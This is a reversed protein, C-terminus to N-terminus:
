KWCWFSKHANLIWFLILPPSAILCRTRSSGWHDTFQTSKNGTSDRSNTCCGNPKTECECTCERLALTIHKNSIASTTIKLATGPAPHPPYCPHLRLCKRSQPTIVSHSQLLQQSGPPSILLGSFTRSAREGWLFNRVICGSMEREYACVCVCKMKWLSHLLILSSEREADQKQEM